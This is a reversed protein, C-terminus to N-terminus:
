GGTAATHKSCRCAGCHAGAWPSLSAQGAQRSAQLRGQHPPVPPHARRWGAVLLVPSHAVRMGYQLPYLEHRTCQVPLPSTDPPVPTPSPSNLPLPLTCLQMTQMWSSLQCREMTCQVIISQETTDTQLDLCCRGADAVSVLHPLRNAHLLRAPHEVHDKVCQSTLHTGTSCSASLRAATYACPPPTHVPPVKRCAATVCCPAALMDCKQRPLGNPYLQGFDAM